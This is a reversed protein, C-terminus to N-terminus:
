GRKHREQTFAALIFPLATAPLVLFFRWRLCFLAAELIWQQYLPVPDHLNPLLFAKVAAPFGYLLVIVSLSLVAATLYRM